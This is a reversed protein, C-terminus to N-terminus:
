LDDYDNYLNYILNNKTNLIKKATLVELTQKLNNSKKELEQIKNTDNAIINNVKNQLKDLESSNNRILSIVGSPTNIDFKQNFNERKGKISSFLKIDFLLALILVAIFIEILIITQTNINFKM